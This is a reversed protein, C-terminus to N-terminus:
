GMRKNISLEWGRQTSLAELIGRVRSLECTSIVEGTELSKMDLKSGLDFQLGCLIRDAEALIEMEECTLNTDVVNKLHRVM